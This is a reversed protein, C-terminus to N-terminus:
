KKWGILILMKRVYDKLKLFAKLLTFHKNKILYWVIPYYGSLKSAQIISAKEKFVKNIINRTEAQTLTSDKRFLHNVLALYRNAFKQNIIQYDMINFYKLLSVTEDFINDLDAFCDKRFKISLSNNNSITYNYLCDDIVYVHETFRFYSCNFAFDEAYDIDTNFKINNKKIIEAKYIKNCPSGIIIDCIVELNGKIFDKIHYRGLTTLKIDPMNRNLNKIGCFVMDANNANIKDVLIETMNPEIFDDSDVFQIFEGNAFDLGANRAGSVGLNSKNNIIIIRNDQKAFSECIKISGDTSCDDVLLIELDKYTQNIISKICRELCKESNYIPVIVSVKTNAM